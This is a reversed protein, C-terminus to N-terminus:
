SYNYQSLNWAERINTNILNQIHM